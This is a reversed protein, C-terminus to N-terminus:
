LRIRLRSRLECPKSLEDLFEEIAVELARM